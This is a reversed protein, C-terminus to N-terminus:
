ASLSQTIHGSEGLFNVRAAPDQPTSFLPGFPGASLLNDLRAFLMPPLNAARPDTRLAGAVTGMRREIADENVGTFVVLTTPFTPYQTVWADRDAAFKSYGLLRNTLRQTSMTQRDLEIFRWLLIPRDRTQLEYHLLADPVIHTQRHPGWGVGNHRVEHSWEPPSDGRERAALLFAVGVDNVDVHHASLVGGVISPPVDRRTGPEVLGSQGVLRLGKQTLYWVSIRPGGARRMWGKTVLDFREHKELISLLSKSLTRRYKEQAKEKKEPPAPISPVEFLAVMQDIVLARHEYLAILVRMTRDGTAGTVVIPNTM